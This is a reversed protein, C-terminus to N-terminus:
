QDGQDGKMALDWARNSRTCFVAGGEVIPRVRALRQLRFICQNAHDECCVLIHVEDRPSGVLAGGSCNYNVFLVPLNASHLWDLIASAVPLQPSTTSEDNSEARPGPLFNTLLLWRGGIPATPSCMCGAVMDHKIFCYPEVGEKRCPEPWHNWFKQWALAAESDAAIGLDRTWSM